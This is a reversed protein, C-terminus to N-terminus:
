SQWNSFASDIVQVISYLGFTISLSSVPQQRVTSFFRVLFCWQTFTTMKPTSHIAAGSSHSTNGLCTQAGLGGVDYGHFANGFLDCNPPFQKEVDFLFSAYAPPFKLRHVMSPSRHPSKPRDRMSGSDKAVWCDHLYPIQVHVVTTIPRCDRWKTRTPITHLALYYQIYVLAM